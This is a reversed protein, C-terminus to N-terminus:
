QKFVRQFFNRLVLANVESLSLGSFGAGTKSPVADSLIIVDATRFNMSSDLVRLRGQCGM